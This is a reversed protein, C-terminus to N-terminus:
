ARHVPEGCHRHLAQPSPLLREFVARPLALPSGITLFLEPRLEVPNGGSIAAKALQAQAGVRGHPQPM